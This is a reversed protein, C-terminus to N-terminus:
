GSPRSMTRCHGISYHWGGRERHWCSDRAFIEEDQPSREFSLPIGGDVPRPNAGASATVLLTLVFPLAPLPRMM